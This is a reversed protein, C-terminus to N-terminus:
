AMNNLFTWKMYIVTANIIAPGSHTRAWGEALTTFHTMSFFLVRRTLPLDFTLLKVQLMLSYVALSVILQTVPDDFGM